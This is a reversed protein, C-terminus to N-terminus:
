LNKMIKKTPGWLLAIADLQRMWNLSPDLNLGSLDRPNIVNRKYHEIRLTSEPPKFGDPLNRKRRITLEGELKWSYCSAQQTYSITNTMATIYDGVNVFWDLVFSLPILEYATALPNLKLISLLADVIDEPSFSRKIICRHTLSLTNNVVEFGDPVIIDPSLVVKDRYKAFVRKYEELTKIVDEISYQIPSIAYRFQLWLSALADALERATRATQKKNAFLKKVEVEKKRVAKYASAFDKLLTIIYKLTEPLEAIETLLDYTGSNAKALVSTILGTDYDFVPLLSSIVSEPIVDTDFAGRLNTYVLYAQFGQNPNYPDMPWCPGIKGGLGYPGLSFWGYGPGHSLVDVYTWGPSHTAEVKQIEYPNFVIEGARAASIFNSRSFPVRFGMHNTVPTPLPGATEISRAFCEVGPRGLVLQNQGFKGWIAQMAESEFKNGFPAWGPGTRFQFSSGSAASPVLISAFNVQAM